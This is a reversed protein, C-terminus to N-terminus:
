TKNYFGTEHVQNVYSQAVFSGQGFINTKPKNAVASAPFDFYMLFVCVNIYYVPYIYLADLVAFFFQPNLETLVHVNRVRNVARMLAVTDVALLWLGFQDLRLHLVVYFITPIPIFIQM